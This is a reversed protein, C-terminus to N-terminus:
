VVGAGELAADEGANAEKLLQLDDPALVDALVSRSEWTRGLEPDTWKVLFEREKTGNRKHRLRSDLIAEVSYPHTSP